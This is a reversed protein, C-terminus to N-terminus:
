SGAGTARTVAGLFPPPEGGGHVQLRAGSVYASLPSALFLCADAVDRPEGLRGTPVTAAAAAVGAADGYHLATQETRMLGAVIANVRVKPAWEVALTETLNLLGAKAAGYAATGPSPRTGSVSAINVIAGGDTQAQMVRNAAQAAHLPGLLNLEVIATSFGPSASAAEAMPSGGANNVLVDLRGHTDVIVGVLEDVQAPDRVDSPIFSGVPESPENRATVVVEAGVEIFRSAIGRGIGKTGGTVLVVSGSFDFPDV